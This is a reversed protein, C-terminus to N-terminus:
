KFNSEKAVSKKISGGLYSQVPLTNFPSIIEEPKNRSEYNPVFSGDVTKGVLNLSIYPQLLQMM